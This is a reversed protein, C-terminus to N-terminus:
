KKERKEPIDNKIIRNIIYIPRLYVKNCFKIFIKKISILLLCTTFFINIYIRTPALFFYMFIFIYLIYYIMKLSIQKFIKTKKIINMFLCLFLNYILKILKIYNYKSHGFKRKFHLVPIEIVNNAFMNAIIPIFINHSNYKVIDNIIHKQYARLMCGYDTMNKGLIKQIVINVIKSSIKRFLNDQRNIRFTGIVDYGKQAAYILKPIEEPPNQLDADLTIILDGKSHAFGAMIAAHQGYNKNLFIAIISSDPKSAEFELINPSRDYSGDDIIM